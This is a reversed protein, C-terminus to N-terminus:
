GENVLDRLASVSIGISAAIEAQTYKGSRMLSKARSAKATSLKTNTKPTALKKINDMNTNNLILDLKNNSVAGSQIAEWEKTTVEVMEKKAKVKSRAGALAQARLKKKQDSTMDYNLNKYYTNSALIQAQREKPANLLAKNLKSDLSKVEKEYVKAARPNRKLPPISQAEKKVKSNLGKVKNVYNAYVNEVATGSSLANVNGDREYIEDILYKKTKRDQKKSRSVITSAATSQKGTTPSKHGQYKKTLAGIANDRASAKYDLNHKESDIVVMSHKVARALESQSAGKITMDTILNSVLGMQTQTRIKVPNDTKYMQPDFNKLEKLSRSTKIKRSNNPILTVTDGDFDAGSLKSAISPHIGVADIANQIVGKAPGRNNVTLEPIEFIGGHPYRILAVREGDKYGPAYIENTKMDPFPLLVHSKTRPLGQAKLHRAKSDLENAYAELLHKKVVPNTLRSIEDYDMELKKFTANMREKVLKTPQKSLMQSSLKSSWDAWDGEERVVNIAGRQRAILAGFPNDTNVTGDQRKKLEKLVKTKPTGSKKNTNFMMDVGDPLNDSYIAMGKLYHGDGVQIRVQAYQKGGLDLDTSGRRLEIVGDMDAGGKDGYRIGLRDWGVPKVPGMNQLTLGGDDTWAEVPRIKDSNDRVIKYDKEKTLVKVTTYKSPDTLRKVYIEHEVYGEEKLKAISAKLKARSIGMQREVGVGVDLYEHDEVSNRLTDTINDIQKTKVQDQKNKYNRVTSEAVGLDNAIKTNSDGRESRSKISDMLVNKRVENAWAKKNRLESTNMGLKSAIEKESLGKLSLEDVESLFDRSRQPDEGSGWPYRGSRRKVGYHKIEESM